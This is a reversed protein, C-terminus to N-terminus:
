IKVNLMGCQFNMFFCKGELSEPRSRYYDLIKNCFIDTSNDSLKDREDKPKLVKYWCDPPKTNLYLITRIDEILHLDSLRYAAEQASM